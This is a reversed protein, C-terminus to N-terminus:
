LLGAGLAVAVGILMVGVAVQVGRITVKHLLRNGLLSGAAAGAIGAVVASAGNGLTSFAGDAVYVPIRAIDVAVAIVVGSALFAEKSLGLRILFASRLAGQLGSIGGIFGTALGGVPLWKPDLGRRAINPLLESVGFVLLLVAIVVAAPEIEFRHSGITYAGIERWRSIAGLLAAGGFAAVLAPGGFRVAVGRDVHERLLGFKLANNALHVVATAAVATSVPLFAAMVPLLLTGLGFGSYFTLGSAVFASLAVVVLRL